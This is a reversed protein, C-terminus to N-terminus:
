AGHTRATRSRADRPGAREERHRRLECGCHRGSRQGRLGTAHRLGSHRHGFHYAQGRGNRRCGPGVSDRPATARATTGRRRMRGPWPFLQLGRRTNDAERHNNSLRSRCDTPAVDKSEGRDIDPSYCRATLMRAGEQRDATARYDDNGDCRPLSSRILCEVEFFPHEFIRACPSERTTKAM